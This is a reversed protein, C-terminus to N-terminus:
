DSCVSENQHNEGLFDSYVQKPIHLILFQWYEKWKLVVFFFPNLLNEVSHKSMADLLQECM